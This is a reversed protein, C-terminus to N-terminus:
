NNKWVDENIWPKENIWYGSGFCSRVAQYVLVKGRYMEVIPTAGRYLEVIEKGNRVIM